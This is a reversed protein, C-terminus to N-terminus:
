QLVAQLFQWPNVAGPLRPCVQPYNLIFAPHHLVTSFNRCISSSTIILLKFCTLTLSKSTCKMHCVGLHPSFYHLISNDHNMNEPYFLREDYQKCGTGIVLTHTKHNGVQIISKCHDHGCVYLDIKVKQLLDNMFTELQIETNGHGGVSRWTHHGCLIKWKKSKLVISKNSIAM